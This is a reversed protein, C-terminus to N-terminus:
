KCIRKVNVMLKIALVVAEFWEHFPVLKTIGYQLFRNQPKMM